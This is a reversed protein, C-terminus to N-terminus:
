PVQQLDVPLEVHHFIHGALFDAEMYVLGSGQVTGDLDAVLDLGLGRFLVVGRGNFVNLGFHLHQSGFTSTRACFNPWDELSAWDVCLLTPRMSIQPSELMLLIQRMRLMVILLRTPTNTRALVPNTTDAQLVVLAVTSVNALNVDLVLGPSHILASPTICSLWFARRNVATANSFRSCSM